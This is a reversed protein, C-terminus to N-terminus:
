WLYRYKRSGVYIYIIYIFFLFWKLLFQFLFCDKKGKMKEKTRAFREETGEDTRDSPPAKREAGGGQMGSWTFYSFLFCVGAGGM